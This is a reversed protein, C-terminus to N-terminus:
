VKSAMKWAVETSCDVDESFRPHSLSLTHTHTHMCTPIYMDFYAEMWGDMWGETRGDTLGDMWGRMRGIWGVKTEGRGDIWAYVCACACAREEMHLYMTYM